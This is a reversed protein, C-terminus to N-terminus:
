EKGKRATPRPRRGVTVALEEEAQSRAVKLRAQEGPQMMAILNLMGTTDAVPKGNVALLIDGM